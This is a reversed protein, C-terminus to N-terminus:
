VNRNRKLKSINLSFYNVSDFIGRPSGNQHLVFRRSFKQHFIIVSIVADWKEPYKKKLICAPNINSLNCLQDINWPPQQATPHKNLSHQRSHPIVLLLLRGFRWPKSIANYGFLNKYILTRAELESCRLGVRVIIGTGYFFSRHRIAPAFYSTQPRQFSEGQM